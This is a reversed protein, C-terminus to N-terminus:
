TRRVGWFLVQACQVFDALDKRVAWPYYWQGVPMFPMSQFAELQIQECIKKQEAIDPADFWQDRLEELKADTPWGFWGKKGNGRLPFSSGPNSTALGGWTTHFVNWGGQSPPDMKARRAVLTGWDMVQYDVNLGLKTFLERSVQSPAVLSPQDSPAMMVIKEGNYGSEAILKKAAALDRKSTFAEMGANNAMPSHATFFGVPYTGLDQQEGVWATVYDQQDIAPLLARLLKPNDFPPYLHNFAIIALAGLPDYRVVDCEASKRLMPLLDLMPFELWDVEGTQLAAAATAPDPQTHWEVREFYAVKGGSVYEPKEQRPVYGPNKVYVAKTGAQWEDQKFIFPGSGVFEKIQETAPTKAMREPMIFCGQAGLAYTMQRFRKKLRIQFQSDDLPKMEDTQAVLQQGFPNKAAWRQISTVCDIGRVPAGDTFKLGERLKFTWTLEDSSVEHEAVMQPQGVLADNIGFLTDWVMYGHNTAVTATTWIPDPNALDAQPVFKLVKASVGQALAPRALRTTGLSALAAGSALLHRRRM